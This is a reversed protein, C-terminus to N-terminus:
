FLKFFNGEPEWNETKRFYRDASSRRQIRRLISFLPNRGEYNKSLGVSLEEYKRHTQVFKVVHHISRWGCDNFAIVGGPGAMKDMYFFDLLAHDFNHNGDIYGFDMAVGKALLKPLAKYSPEEILEHLSDLGARRVNLLGIGKENSTQLPDVSLLRGGENLERLATLISLTSIGLCMGIEVVQKPRFELITRYLTTAHLPSIGAYLPRRRGEIDTVFGSALIERLIENPPLEANM